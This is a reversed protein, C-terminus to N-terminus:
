VSIGSSWGSRAPRGRDALEDSLGNRPRIELYGQSIPRNGPKVYRLHLQERDGRQAAQRQGVGAEAGAASALAVVRRGDHQQLARHRGRDRRGPDVLHQPADFSAEDEEARSVAGLALDFASSGGGVRGFRSRHGGGVAAPPADIGGAEAPELPVGIGGGGGPVPLSM